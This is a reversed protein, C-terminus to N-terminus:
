PIEEPLSAQRSHGFGALAAQIEAELRSREAAQEADTFVREPIADYEWYLGVLREIGLADGAYVQDQSAAEGGFYVDMMIRQLASAAPIAGTAGAQAYYRFLWGRAVAPTPLTLGVEALARRFEPEADARVLTDAREGAM